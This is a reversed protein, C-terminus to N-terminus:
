AHCLLRAVKVGVIVGGIDVKSMVGEGAVESLIDISHYLGLRELVKGVDNVEVGTEESIQQFIRYAEKKVQEM